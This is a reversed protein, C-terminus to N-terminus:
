QLGSPETWRLLAVRQSFTSTPVPLAFGRYPGLPISTVRHVSGDALVAELNATTTVENRVLAVLFNTSNDDQRIDQVIDAGAASEAGNVSWTQGDPSVWVPLSGIRAAAGVNGQPDVPRGRADFWLISDVPQDGVLPTDTVVAFASYDTGPVRVVKTSWGSVVGANGVGLEVFLHDQASGSPIVGLVLRTNADTLWTTHHVHEDVDDGATGAQGAVAYRVPRRGAADAAGLSVKFRQPQPGGQTSSTVGDMEIVATATPGSPGAPQPAGARRSGGLTAGGVAVAGVLVATVLTTRLRRRRISRQGQRIAADLDLPLGHAPLAAELRRRLDEPAEGTGTTMPSERHHEPPQEPRRPTHPAPTIPRTFAGLHSRDAVVIERLSAQSQSWLSAVVGVSIGLTEATDPESLDAYCRLVAVRLQADSLGALWRHIEDSGDSAHHGGVHRNVVLRRTHALAADGRVKPWAVYTKVLAAQVLEAAAQTSGSLLWATRMLPGESERAFATFEAGRNGRNPRNGRNRHVGPADDHM